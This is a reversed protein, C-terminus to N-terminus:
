NHMTQMFLIFHVRLPSIVSMWMNWRWLWRISKLSMQIPTTQPKCWIKLGSNLKPGYQNM